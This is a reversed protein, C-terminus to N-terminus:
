VNQIEYPYQGPSLVNNQRPFMDTNKLNIPLILGSLPDLLLLLNVHQIISSNM